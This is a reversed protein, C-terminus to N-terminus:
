AAQSPTALTWGGDGEERVELARGDADQVRFREVMAPWGRRDLADIGGPRTTSMSLRATPPLMATVGIRLPEVSLVRVFYTAAEAPAAAASGLPLWVALLIALWCGSKGRDRMTTEEMTWPGLICVPAIADRPVRRRRVPRRAKRAM